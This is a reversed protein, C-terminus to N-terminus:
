MYYMLCSIKRKASPAAPAEEEILSFTPLPGRKCGAPAGSILVITGDPRQVVGSLKLHREATLACATLSKHSVQLQRFDSTGAIKGIENLGAGLREIGTKFDRMLGITEKM